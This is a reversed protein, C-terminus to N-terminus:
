AKARKDPISGNNIICEVLDVIGENVDRYEMGLIQKSQTNDMNYHKGWMHLMPKIEPMFISALKVPCYGLEKTKINYSKGYHNKMDESCRCVM